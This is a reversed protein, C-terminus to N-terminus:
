ESFWTLDFICSCELEIHMPSDMIGTFPSYHKIRMKSIAFDAKRNRQKDFEDMGCIGQQNLVPIRDM